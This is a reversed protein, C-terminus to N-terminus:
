PAGWLACHHEAAFAAAPRPATGEGAGAIRLITGAGRWAPWTTGGGGPDGTTVFRAWAGVMEDALDQQEPTLAPQGPVLDFLYAMEAGHTVGGALDPPLAAFTAPATPDAFEYAHVPARKALNRYAALGTCAFARDTIVESWARGPSRDLQPYARGAELARSGAASALLVRFGAETLPTGARDFFAETFLTGEDRTTGTLVPVPRLDLVALLDSPRRPLTPTRSAPSWYVATGPATQAAVLRAAPVARLCSLATAPDPCGMAAATREGAANVLPLPKWTDGAPGTGPRVVDLINATSCGGSQLIARVFLGVADPSAIQSCVSDAGASEGGLTVDTADGGFAAANARVWRLAAQQDLLGFAGSGELGPLGLFGLVGLRYNITVVVMPGARALRRPDVDSGAGASFGGGHIWVLVPLGAGATTGVPVTVDLTLCDERDSAATAHPVGPAAAQQACRTGPTTASRTGVWPVPPRPPRWRLDGVPPAAYPIGRYRLVDGDRTGVLDGDAVTVHVDLPPPAPDQPTSCAAAVSAAVLLVAAARGRFTM